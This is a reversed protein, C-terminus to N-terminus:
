LLVVPQHPDTGTGWPEPWIGYRDPWVVQLVEVSPGGQNIALFCRSAQPDVPVLRVPVAAAKHRDPDILEGTTPYPDGARDAADISLGLGVLFRTAMVPPVGGTILLEPKGSLTWRGVTYAFGLHSGLDPGINLVQFGHDMAKVEIEEVFRAMEDSM